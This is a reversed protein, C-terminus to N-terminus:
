QQRREFHPVDKFGVWFMGAQNQPHLFEWFEGIPRLKSIDYVLAGTAPDIFNLDIALKKLHNSNYTQSRGTKVYIDQQEPTRLLEGGTVRFGRSTAFPVLKCVDLLFAAQQESLTAM